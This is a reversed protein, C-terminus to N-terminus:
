SLVQRAGFSFGGRHDLLPVQLKAKMSLPQVSIECQDVHFRSTWSALAVFPQHDLFVFFTAAFFPDLEEAIDADEATLSKSPAALRGMGEAMRGISAETTSFGNSSGLQSNSILHSPYRATENM